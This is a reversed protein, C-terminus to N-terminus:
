NLSNRDREPVLANKKEQVECMLFVNSTVRQDKLTMTTGPYRELNFDFKLQDFSKAILWEFSTPYAEPVVIDTVLCNLMNSCVFSTGECFLTSKLVYCFFNEECITQKTITVAIVQCYSGAYNAVAQKAGDLTVEQFSAFVNKVNM